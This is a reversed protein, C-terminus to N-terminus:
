WIMLVANINGTNYPVPDYFSNVVDTLSTNWVLDGNKWQYNGTSISRGNNYTFFVMNGQSDYRYNDWDLGYYNSPDKHFVDTIRNQADILISDTYSVSNSGYFITYGLMYGNKYVFDKVYSETLQKNPINNVRKVTGDDNYYFQYIMTSSTDLGVQTIQSVRCGTFHATSAPSPNSRKKCSTIAIFLVLLVPVIITAKRM